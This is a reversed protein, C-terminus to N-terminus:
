AAAEEAPAAKAKRGRKKPQPQAADAQKEEKPAAPAAEKPAKAAEKPAAAKEEKKPRGRKKAAPKPESPKQSEIVAEKDLIAFGLAARDMKRAGKIELSEAISKLQDESM